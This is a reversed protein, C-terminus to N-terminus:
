VPQREASLDLLLESFLEASQIMAKESLDFTRTHHGRNGGAGVLFYAAQGGSRTVADMMFTFDESGIAKESQPLVQDFCGLKRASQEIRETLAASSKACIAAGVPEITFDVDHMLAAGAIIREAYLGMYADVETDEGRTEIKLFAKEAIVNRDTGAELRGVNIRSMGRKHRPIANLNMVATCAALMASKGDSPAAGAHSPQGTFTVDLKHTAMFGGAGCILLGLPLDGMIHAAVAYQIGDLAGSETMAKAGRVGEEAPQFILRIEGIGKLEDKMEMIIKATGLGIAAHADHGCAHMLGTTESAFGLQNPAHGVDDSELISLADIDFRFAVNPGSGLQYTAVVGTYGGKMEKMYVESGGTELARQYAKELIAADPIGMREAEGYIAQGVRVDYGM